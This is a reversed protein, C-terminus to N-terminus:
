LKITDKIKMISDKKKDPLVHTYTDATMKISSHGLLEQMVKLDIGNELGRTAFTHRLTHPHVGDIGVKKAIQHFHSRVVSSDLLEGSINSFLLNHQNPIDQRIKEQLLNTISDLLPVERTGAETKTLGVGLKFNSGMRKYTLTKNVQLMGKDFDIDNWTLVLAEGIRLGTALMIIFIEGYPDDKAFEIFKAQEEASLVRMSEKKSQKPFKVKLSVNKLVLGNTVAQDLAGHLISHARVISMHVQGKDSLDNVFKQIMEHRLDKLKHKGLAPKICQEVVSSYAKYSSPRISRKKYETMWIDLWEGVTMKSPEICDGKDRAAKVETIWEKADKMTKFYKAQRKQKGNEDYGVTMRAQYTGNPLKHITGEGKGRAM